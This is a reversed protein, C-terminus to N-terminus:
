SKNCISAATCLVMLGATETRLITPGLSVPTAGHQLALDVERPTFDGEPGVMILLDKQQSQILRESLLPENGAECWCIYATTASSKQSVLHELSVQHHIIPIHFQKSQKIASIAIRQFRDPNVRAREGRECTIFSIEDVGIETAKEVLWDMREGSKTPAIALHISYPRSKSHLHREKVRCTALKRNESVIMAIVEMGKGDIVNVHDGPAHRLVKLCHRSEEESLTFEDTDINAHYFLQM